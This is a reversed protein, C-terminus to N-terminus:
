VHAGEEWGKMHKCNTLEAKELRKPLNVIRELGQEFTM